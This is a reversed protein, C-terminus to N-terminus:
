GSDAQPIKLSQYQSWGTKEKAPINSKQGILTLQEQKLVLQSATKGGPILVIQKLQNGLTQGM